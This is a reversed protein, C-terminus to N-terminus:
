VGSLLCGAVGLKHLARSELRDMGTWICPSGARAEYCM